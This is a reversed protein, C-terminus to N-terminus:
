LFRLPFGIMKAFKRQAKSIHDITSLNDEVLEHVISSINADPIKIEAQTETGDRVLLGHRAALKKIPANTSLCVMTGTKINRNQCWEICRKMLENGMGQNQYEKLVSFALEPEADMLCIHGVGILELDDNEIAFIINKDADQSWKKHLELITETKVQYGFRMLKSDEDLSLLHTKYRHFETDPLRFISHM